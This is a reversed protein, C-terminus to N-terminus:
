VLLDILSEQILKSSTQQSDPKYTGKEISAKLEVVKEDRTEPASELADKIRQFDRAKASLQVQDGHSRNNEPNKKTVPKDAATKQLSRLNTVSEENDIKM